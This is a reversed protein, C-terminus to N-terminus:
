NVTFTVAGLAARTTDNVEVSNMSQVPAIAQGANNTLTLQINYQGPVIAPSDLVRASCPYDAHMFMQDGMMASLTVNKAGVANCQVTTGGQVIAWPIHFSQISLPVAEIHNVGGQRLEVSNHLETVVVNSVNVLRVGLDYSGRPLARTQLSGGTDGRSCEFKDLYHMGSAQNVSEVEIIPTDASDCTVLDVRNPDNAPPLYVLDYDIQFVSDDNGCATALTAVSGVFFLWLTGTRSILM